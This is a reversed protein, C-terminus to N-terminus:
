CIGKARQARLRTEYEAADFDAVRAVGEEVAAKAVALSVEVYIDRDFPKPIIYKSGFEM